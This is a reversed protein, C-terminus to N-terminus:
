EIVGLEKLEATLAETPTALKGYNEALREKLEDTPNKKYQGKLLNIYRLTKLEQAKQAETVPVEGGSYTDYQQWNSKLQKDKEILEKLFPYRESDPCTLQETSLTRLKLHLERMQQLLSLNEVYLAQIEAPLEDHDIRKGKRLEAAKSGSEATLHRKDVIAEVTATMQKVEEHTAQSLRFKLYKGLQREILQAYKAPNRMINQYMIRNRNVRLILMAGKAYDKEEANVWEQLEQIFEM